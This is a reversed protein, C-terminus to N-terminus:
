PYRSEILIAALAFDKVCASPRTGVGAAVVRLIELNTWKRGTDRTVKKATAWTYNALAEDSDSCGRRIKALAQEYRGIASSDTPHQALYASSHDLV